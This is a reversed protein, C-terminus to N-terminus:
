NQHKCFKMLLKEWDSIIRTRNFDARILSANRAFLKRNDNDSMLIRLGSALSSTRNDSSVLLGNKGSQILKNVGPCDEFGIAPLGYALAEAVVLSFSEFRSPIVFIHANTYEEHISPNNGPLYVRDEFGLMKVIIEFEQKLDGDGVIHLDWDSFEDSLKSFAHLLVAHDKFVSLSGVALLIKRNNSTSEDDAMYQTYISVPNHLVHMHKQLYNSYGNKVQDSVVTMKKTIFPTIQLLLNQFQHVSYYNSVTHESAIFPINSGYLSIGLPIYISNMFGIVIDPCLQIISRRLKIIRQITELLTSRVNKKGIGLSIKHINQNLPYYSKELPDDYTVITVDHGLEVLGSSIDTLVREAGGGPNNLSKVAFCIKM